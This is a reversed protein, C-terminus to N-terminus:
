PLEWKAYAAAEGGHHPAGNYRAAPKGGMAAKNKARASKAIRQMYDRSMIQM